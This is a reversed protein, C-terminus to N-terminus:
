TWHGAEAAREAFSAFWEAMVDGDILVDILQPGNLDDARIASIDKTTAVTRGGLGLATAVAALPPVDHYAADAALGRIRLHHAESSLAGDNLVVIVLPLRYRAVTELEAISMMLGGDGVVLITTRDPCAISAGIATGLGLGTSGFDIAFLFASPDPVSMHTCPYGTFHGGDVVLTRNRPLLRDLAIV